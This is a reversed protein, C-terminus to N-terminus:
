QQQNQKGGGLVRLVAGYGELVFEQRFQEVGGEPTYSRTRSKGQLFVQTGSKCKDRVIEALKGFVKVRHWETQERQEGSAKDRWYEGTAVSFQAVCSGDDKYRIEPEKGINGVLTMQNVGKEAM